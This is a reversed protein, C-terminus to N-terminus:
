YTSDAQWGKVTQQTRRHSARRPGSRLPMTVIQSLLLESFLIGGVCCLCLPHPVGPCAFGSHHPLTSFAGRKKGTGPSVCLQKSLLPSTACAPPPLWGLHAPQEAARSHECSSLEDWMDLLIMSHHEPWEGGGESCSPHQVVERVRASLQASCSGQALSPDACGSCLLVCRDATM